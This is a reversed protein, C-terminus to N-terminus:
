SKFIHRGSLWDSMVIGVSVGFAGLLAAVIFEFSSYHHKPWIWQLLVFVIVCVAFGRLLRLGYSKNAQNM